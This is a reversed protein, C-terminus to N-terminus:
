DGGSDDAGGEVFSYPVWPGSVEIRVDRLEPAARLERVTGALERERGADLLYAANLVQSRRDGAPEAGHARLRRAAVALPRLRDDVRDAARLVAEQRQERARQRGRVRELYARGSPARGTAGDEAGALAARDPGATSGAQTGTYVKVGWEARGALRRLAASLERERALLAARTREDDHYVTALPMPVVTAGRAAACVVAHHERACRELEVPDALRDRLSEASYDAAPVSQVVVGLSGVPLLRVPTDPCLGSAEPPCSPGDGPRVAFVYTAVATGPAPPM